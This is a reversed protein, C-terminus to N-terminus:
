AASIRNQCAKRRLSRAVFAIAAAIIILLVAGVLILAALDLGQSPLWMNTASVITHMSFDTGEATGEVSVGTAQDWVYSNNGASASVVTRLAGAYTRQEVGSISVIGLNEDKFTDGVKLNAPIIFDDILHGTLLNLTSNTVETSGDSLRSTITVSIDTGQVDVIEMRAWNVNHGETLDGTYTVNYEIWDDPKVGVSLDAVAVSTLSVLFTLTFLAVLVREARM